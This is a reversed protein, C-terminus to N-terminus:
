RYAALWAEAEARWPAPVKRRLREDNLGRSGPVISILTSRSLRRWQGAERKLAYLTRLAESRQGARLYAKVKALEWTVPDPELGRAAFLASHKAKLMRFGRDCADLDLSMAPGHTRYALLPRNVPAIPSRQALRICMDWDEESPLDPDFGGVEDLLDRSALLGSGSGPVADQVLMERSLDTTRPAESWDTVRLSANVMVVGVCSWRAGRSESIAALQAALKDPAFLDDDDVFAVWAGGSAAIGTNRAASVGRPDDHRLVKVRGDDFEALAGATGDRSADDVVVVELDVDRQNLVSRVTAIVMGVRDRTPIVVSVVPQGM